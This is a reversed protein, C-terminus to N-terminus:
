GHHLTVTTPKMAGVSVGLRSTVLTPKLKELVNFSLADPKPAPKSRSKSTLNHFNTSLKLLRDGLSM